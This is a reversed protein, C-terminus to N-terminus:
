EQAIYILRPLIILSSGGILLSRWGSGILLGALFSFLGAIIVASLDLYLPEREGPYLQLLRLVFGGLFLVSILIYMEALFGNLVLMLFEAALSLALWRRYYRWQSAKIDFKEPIKDLLKYIVQRAKSVAQRAQSLAKRAQASQQM